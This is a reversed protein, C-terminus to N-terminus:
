DVDSPSIYKGHESEVHDAEWEIDSLVGFDADATLAEAQEFAYRAAEKETMGDPVPIRVYFRGSVALSVSMEM